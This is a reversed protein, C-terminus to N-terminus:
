PTEGKAAHIAKCIDILRSDDSAGTDDCWDNLAEWHDHMGKPTPPDEGFNKVTTFAWSLAACRCLAIAEDDYPYREDADDREWCPRWNGYTDDYIALPGRKEHKPQTEPVDKHLDAYLKLIDDADTM